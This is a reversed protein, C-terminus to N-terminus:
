RRKEEHSEGEVSEVLIKTESVKVGQRNKFTRTWLSGKLGIKKGIKLKPALELAVDGFIAAEFYGISAKGFYKQPVAVTFECVATGTPTYKLGHSRSVKGEV